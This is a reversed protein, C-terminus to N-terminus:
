RSLSSLLSQICHRQFSTFATLCLYLNGEQKQVPIFTDLSQMLAFFLPFNLNNADPSLVILTHIEGVRTWCRTSTFLSIQEKVTPFFFLCESCNGVSIINCLCVRNGILFSMEDMATPVACVFAAHLSMFFEFGHPTLCCFLSQWSQTASYSSDLPVCM